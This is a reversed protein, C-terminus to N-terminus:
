EEQYLWLLDIFCLCVQGLNEQSISEPPRLFTFGSGATLLRLLLYSPSTTFCLWTMWTRTGVSFLLHAMRSLYSVLLIYYFGPFQSPFFCLFSLFNETIDPPLNPTVVCLPSPVMKKKSVTSIISNDWKEKLGYFQWKSIYFHVCLSSEHLLRPFSFFFSILLIFWITNYSNIVM